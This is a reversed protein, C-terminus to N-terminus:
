SIEELVRSLKPHRLSRRIRKGGKGTFDLRLQDGQLRLHRKLLTTAGHTGNETLYTRNGVRLHTRDLLTAIAALVAQESTAEEDLDRLIRRRLRPLAKGFAALQDFKSCNQLAHWQPHYRYQKRGRADYGTAQLHGEAKPCIWVNEYAPPIGLDRIRRLVEADRLLTGDPQHYSFGRGRRVRRIGPECDSAYALGVQAPDSSRPSKSRKRKMQRM